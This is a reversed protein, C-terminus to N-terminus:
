LIPSLGGHLSHCIIQSSEFSILESNKAEFLIMFNNSCYMIFLSLCSYRNSLSVCTGDILYEGKAYKNTITFTKDELFSIEENVRDKLNKKSNENNRSCGTLIFLIFFIFLIYEIFFKKRM